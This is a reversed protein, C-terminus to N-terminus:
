KSVSEAMSLAPEVSESGSYTFILYLAAVHILISLLLGVTKNLLARNREGTTEM